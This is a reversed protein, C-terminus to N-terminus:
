DYVDDGTLGGCVAGLRAPLGVQRLYWCLLGLGSYSALEMSNTVQHLRRMRQKMPSAAWRRLVRTSADGETSKVLRIM